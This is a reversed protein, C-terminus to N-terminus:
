NDKRTKMPEATEWKALKRYLTRTGIKLAKATHERHGGFRELTHLIYRQEIEAAALTNTKLKVVRKRAQILGYDFFATAAEFLDRPLDEAEWHKALCRMLNDLRFAVPNRKARM